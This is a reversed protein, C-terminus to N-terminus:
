EGAPAWIVAGYLKSSAAAGDFFLIFQYGDPSQYRSINEGYEYDDGPWPAGVKASVQEYTMGTSVGPTITVNQATEGPGALAYVSVGWPRADPLGMPTYYYTFTYSLAGQSAFCWWSDPDDPSDTYDFSDWTQRGLQDYTMDFYDLVSPGSLMEQSAERVWASISSMHLSAPILAEDFYTRLRDILQDSGGCAAAARLFAERFDSCDGNVPMYRLSRFLVRGFTENDKSYQEFWIRYLLNSIIFSNEHSRTTSTLGEAHVRLTWDAPAILKDMALDELAYVGDVFYLYWDIANMDAGAEKADLYTDYRYDNMTMRKAPIDKPQSTNVALKWSGDGLFLAAFTDCVAENIAACEDTPDPTQTLSHFISHAYEHALVEPASEVEPRVYVIADSYNVALSGPEDKILIASPTNNGNLGYWGYQEAYWAAVRYYHEMMTLVNRAEANAWNSDARHYMIKKNLEVKRRRLYSDYSSYEKALEKVKRSSNSADIAYFNYKSNYAYFIGNEESISMDYGEVAVDTFDEAQDIPAYAYVEPGDLALVMDIDVGEGDVTFRARVSRALVAQGSQTIFIVPKLTSRDYVLSVRDSACDTM